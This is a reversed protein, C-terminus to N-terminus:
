KHALELSDVAAAGAPTLAFTHAAFDDGAQDILKREHLTKIVNTAYKGIAEGLDQRSV